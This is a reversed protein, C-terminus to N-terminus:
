DRWLVNLIAGNGTFNRRNDMGEWSVLTSTKTNWIVLKWEFYLHTPLVMNIMWNSNQQLIMDAGKNPVWNGLAPM